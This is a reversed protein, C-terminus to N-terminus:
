EASQWGLVHITRALGPPACTETAKNAPVTFRSNGDSALQQALDPPLTLGFRALTAAVEELTMRLTPRHDLNHFLYSGAEGTSTRSDAITLFFGEMGEDFGVFVELDDDSTWIVYRSM